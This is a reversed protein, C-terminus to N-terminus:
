VRNKYYDYFWSYESFITWYLKNMLRRQQAMPLNM